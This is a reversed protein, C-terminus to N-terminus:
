LHDMTCVYRLSPYLAISKEVILDIEPIFRTQVNRYHVTISFLNDEVSAGEISELAQVLHDRIAALEPLTEEAVQNRIETGNPGIIDFGHSGAYYIGDVQVFTTLKALSRGSIVGTVFYDKLQVLQHKMDQSLIANQPDAVIPTLTGDYDLFLILQKHQFATRLEPFRDLANTESISLRNIM